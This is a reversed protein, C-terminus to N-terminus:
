PLHLKSQLDNPLGNSFLSFWWKAGGLIRCTLGFLHHFKLDGNVRWGAMTINHELDVNGKNGL